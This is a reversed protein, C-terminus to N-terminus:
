ICGLYKFPASRNLESILERVSSVELFAAETKKPKPKEVQALPSEKLYGWAVAKNLISSILAHYHKLTNENLTEGREAQVFLASVPRKLASAIGEASSININLRSIASRLTRVGIGASKAIMEQTEKAEKLLQIGSDTLRWKSDRRSGYRRLTDYIDNIRSGDIGGDMRAGCHLCYEGDGMTEIHCHSCECTLGFDDNHMIWHGHVVLAVDAAPLKRLKDLLLTTRWPRRLYMENIWENAAKLADTRSIYGEIM